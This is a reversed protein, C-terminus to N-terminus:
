RSRPMPTGVKRLYAIIMTTLESRVALAREQSRPLAILTQVPGVLATSLVFSILPINSFARDSATALVACLAAQSRQTMQSVIAAGSVEAAVAYLVRSADADSLKAAVFAHVVAEGIRATTGGQATQCALEVSEVVQLLHRELVASMLTRKDPFYQYLTGVSVGARDAVKTTTIGAHGVDKLVQITAEFIADVTYTSRAQVPKRVPKGALKKIPM